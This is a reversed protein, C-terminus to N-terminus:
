IGLMWTFLQAQSSRGIVEAKSASVPLSQYNLPWGVEDLHYVEPEPLTFQRLAVSVVLPLYGLHQESRQMFVCM